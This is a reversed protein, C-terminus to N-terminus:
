EGGSMYGITGDPNSTIADANSQNIREEPVSMLPASDDLQTNNGQPEGGDDKVGVGYPFGQTREPPSEQKWGLKDEHIVSFTCSLRVIKPYLNGESDGFMADDMAPEFNFGASSGLLGATEASALPKAGPKTVFNLYKMRLLPAQNMGSTGSSASNYSPYLMNFLTSLKELNEQAEKLSGAVVDWSINIVRQTSKFTQIPDMRGYIEEKEWNSQYQDSFSTVFAKFSVEYGSILHYFSLVYGANAFVASDDASNKFNSM